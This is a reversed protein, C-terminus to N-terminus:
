LRLVVIILPYFINYGELWIRGREFGTFLTSPISAGFDDFADSVDM